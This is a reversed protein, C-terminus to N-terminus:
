LLINLLRISVTGSTLRLVPILLCDIDNILQLRHNNYYRMTRQEPNQILLSAVFLLIIITGLTISVRKKM